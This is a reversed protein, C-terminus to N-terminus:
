KKNKNNNKKQIKIRKMKKNLYNIKKCKKLKLIKLIFSKTLNVLKNKIIQPMIRLNLLTMFKVLRMPKIRMGTMLFSSEKTSNILMCTM